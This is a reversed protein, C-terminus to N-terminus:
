RQRLAQEHEVWFNKCVRHGWHEVWWEGFSDEVDYDVKAVREDRKLGCIVCPKSATPVLKATQVQMNESIEPVRLSSTKGASNTAAVASRLRGVYERWAAAVDAADRDERISQTKDVGALKMGKSGAVSISMSKALIKDRHWRHKRGAIVRGATTAIMIYGRLFDAAKPDSLVRDKISATQGATPKFLADGARFLGPFAALLVSPPPVNTPPPQNDDVAAPQSPQPSPKSDWEWTDTAPAATPKVSSPAPKSEFDDWANWQDDDDDVFTAEKLRSPKNAALPKQSKAKEQTQAKATAGFGHPTSPKVPTAEAYSPPDDLSLLDMSAPQSVQPAPAKPRSEVLVPATKPQTTPVTEFDGFDDDEDFDDEDDDEDGGELEFDEADFMVNPNSPQKLKPKTDKAKGHKGVDVLSNNIIDLTDARILRPGGISKLPARNPANELTRHQTSQSTSHSPEEFAEWPDAQSTTPVAQARTRSGSFQSSVPSAGLGALQTASSQDVSSDATEFDGWGDDDDEAAAPQASSQAAPAAGWGTGRQTPLNGWAQTQHLFHSSNDPNQKQQESQEQGSTPSNFEAFLDLSGQRIRGVDSLEEDGFFAWIDEALAEPSEWSAFHGGNDHHYRAKVNGTRQAWELPTRYFIDKPFESIGIPQKVYPLSQFGTANFAGTAAGEKYIRLAGYPGQIWHMMTWTIIEQPTWVEVNEVAPRMTDYMWMALGIPSDTIAFGLRLPRTQQIQGYGWHEGIFWDHLRIFSAEDESTEGLEHRQRDEESPSVTWFSNLGSVVSESYLNAQYRMIIGGADGGQMVYRRYGLQRMLQEFAHAAEVYGFDPHTPAPSFAFGPISPAVVHFAPLDDRPPHTLYNILPGVELFSGPWGHIFLLPIADQRPSVHHVFHLPVSEKYQSVKAIDVTTTYQEFRAATLSMSIADELAPGETHDPQDIPMPLRTLGVRLKTQAIFEEDVDIQFPAPTKGFTAKFNLDSDQAARAVAAFPSLLLISVGQIRM